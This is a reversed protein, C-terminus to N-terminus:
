TTKVFKKIRKVDSELLELEKILIKNKEIEKKNGAEAQTALIIKKSNSTGWFLWTIDCGFNLLDALLEAGPLSNGNLYQSRLGSPERNLQRAGENISGFREILFERFRKGVSKKDLIM